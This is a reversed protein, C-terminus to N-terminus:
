LRDESRSRRRSATVSLCELGPRRGLQRRAHPPLPSTPDTRKKHYHWVKVASPHVMTDCVQGSDQFDPANSRFTEVLLGRDDPVVKLDKVKVGEIV